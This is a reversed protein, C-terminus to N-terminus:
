LIVSLQKQREMAEEVEEVSKMAAKLQEKAWYVAQVAESAQNLFDQARAIATKAQVLKEYETLPMTDMSGCARVRGVERVRDVLCLRRTVM